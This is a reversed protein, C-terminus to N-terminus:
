SPGRGKWDLVVRVRKEWTGDWTTKLGQRNREAVIERAIAQAPGRQGIPVSGGMGTMTQM